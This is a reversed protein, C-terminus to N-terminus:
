YVRIPMVVMQIGEFSLRRQLRFSTDNHLLNNFVGEKQFVLKGAFFIARPYEKSLNQSMKVLSEISDVSVDFRSEAYFGLKNAMKIYKQLNEETNNKLNEVEGVGKFKGTDLEGVSLFVYRKFIKPFLKEISLFTHVGFGNFGSVMLVATADERGPASPVAATNDLKFMTATLDDLRYLAKQTSLYHRKVLVAIFIFGSTIILTLWGGEFFKLSVLIVLVTTTLMLGILNIAFKLAWKKNQKRVQLWHRCMGFQSLSFTIFVNISYLVVLYAVSGHAVMIIAISSLGMFIIGNSVTLQESLHAFRRPMWYDVAMNAMVQPGGIFGTQAAVFLLLGESILTITVVWTGFPSNWSAIIKDFLSANLTEGPVKSVNFLGYLILLGGSLLALSLAMYLMARKGTQARPERLTPMANSVAEIGTYTGAGHSYSKLLILVFAWVGINEVMGKTQTATGSFFGPLANTNQIFAAGLLVLHTIIFVVFIPLLVTISEKVGRLNLIILLLVILISASLKYHQYEIPLSSFLADIGSVVSVAITLIYDVVLASGAVLGTKPGILKTTVVYGGGGLPFLEIIQSYSLSIIAVTLATAIALYVAMFGNHGLVVFAEEPGYCSSTLGDAGLGVWALLAILSLRHFIKPDSSNKAKGVLLNKVSKLDM